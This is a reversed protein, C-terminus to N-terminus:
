QMDKLRKEIEQKEIDIEKLESELVKRQEEKTLILPKAYRLGAGRGCGLGFGRRMGGECQGMGRWTLTGQGYPGTKDKNPM